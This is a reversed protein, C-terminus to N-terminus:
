LSCGHSVTALTMDCGYVMIKSKSNKFALLNMNVQYLFDRMVPTRLLCLICHSICIFYLTRLVLRMCLDTDKQSRPSTSVIAFKYFSSLSQEKVPDIVLKM